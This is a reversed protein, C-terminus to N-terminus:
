QTSHLQRRGYLHFGYQVVRMLVYKVLALMLVVIWEMAELPVTSLIPQLFPVHISVVTSLVACVMAVTLVRNRWFGMPKAQELRRVALIYFASSLSVSAYMMTQMYPVSLNTSQISVYFLLLLVDAFISVLFIMTKMSVSLIPTRRKRPPRDMVSPDSPDFALAIAPFVDTMLNIWIIQVATLPLPLFLFLSGAILLVATFMNSMLYLVVKRINQFISRGQEIGTIITQLSDNLLVVDAVDKAVPVGSGLAIGIDAAKIAPADNVGDGTMAVVEGAEQLEQVILIKHRPEVRAFVRCTQVLAHREKATLEDLEAGTCVMGDGTPLGIKQAIARATAVHDGTIMVTRVGAHEARAIVEAVGERVPDAIGFLGVVRASRVLSETLETGAPVQLFACALVRLGDAALRAVAAHLARDSRPILVEPAGKVCLLQTKDSTTHMTAMTRRSTDFPLTAVRTFGSLITEPDMGSEVAHRLLATETPDGRYSHDAATAGPLCVAESCLITIVQMLERQALQEDLEKGTIEARTRAEEVRMRGETITGTKDACVVSVSGFTEAAILRRPLASQRLMREMGITLLVTLTVVLGEPIAAVGVAIALLFIENWVRGQLLGVVLILGTMVGVLIVIWRGLAAIQQQLPTLPEDTKALLHAISGMQTAVGTAVVVATATGQVVSTGSWAMNKRDGVQAEAAVVRTHKGVAESEGTLVHEDVVLGDCVLIRADAPVLQGEALHLIDGPVLEVAAIEFTKGARTVHAYLPVYESLETLSKEVKYEQAYGIAANILATLLVVIANTYEHLAFAVAGAIALLYLLPSKWQRFFIRIRRIRAREQQLSNPGLRTQREVAERATLGSHLSTRLEELVRKGATYYAQPFHQIAMRLVQIKVPPLIAYKAVAM